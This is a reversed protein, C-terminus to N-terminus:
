RWTGSLAPHRRALIATRCRHHARRATVALDASAGILIPLVIGYPITPLESSTAHFVGCAGLAIGGVLWLFLILAAGVTDRVREARSWGAEDLARHLGYVIAVAVAATGALVSFPLYAPVTM